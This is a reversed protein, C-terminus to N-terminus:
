SKQPPIYRILAEDGSDTAGRFLYQGLAKWLRREDEPTVAAAVGLAALLDRRYLDYVSRVLDGFTIAERVASRYTVLALGAAGLGTPIWVRDTLQGAIGMGTTIIATLVSLSAIVIFQDIARRADDVVTRITDTLLLYQRPWFLVSDLGYRDRSYNEAALLANGLRTPLFDATERPYERLMQTSDWPDEDDLRGYRWRQVAAGPTRACRPRWYGEWWRMLTNIQTGLLVAFVLVVAAAAVALFWREPSPITAVLQRADDWGLATVLLAALAAHFGVCPLLLGVLFRKDLLDATKGFITGLM